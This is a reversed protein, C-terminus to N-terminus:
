KMLQLLHLLFIWKSHISEGVQEFFAGLSDQVLQMFPVVHHFLAHMKPTVSCNLKLYKERFDDVLAQHDMDPDYHMGFCEDVVKGLALLAEAYPVITSPALDTLQSVARARCLERCANGEFQSGHYPSRGVGVASAWTLANDKGWDKELAVYITNIAGMLLHLEPPPLVELVLASDDRKM